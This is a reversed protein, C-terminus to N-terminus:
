KSSNRSPLGPRIRSLLGQATSQQPPSGPQEENPKLKESASKIFRSLINPGEAGGEGGLLNGVAPLKSVVSEFELLGHWRKLLWGFNELLSDMHAVTDGMMPILTDIHTVFEDLHPIVKDRGETLPSISHSPNM